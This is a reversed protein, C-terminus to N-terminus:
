SIYTIRTIHEKQINYDKPQFERDILYYDETELRNIKGMLQNETLQEDSDIYYDYGYTSVIITNEPLEDQPDLYYDTEESYQAMTSVKIM